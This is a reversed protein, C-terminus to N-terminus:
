SRSAEALAASARNSVAMAQRVVWATTEPSLGDQPASIQGVIIAAGEEAQQLAIVLRDREAATELAAGIRGAEIANAFWGVMLGWDSTDPFKECFAETWKAADTGMERLLDAGTM